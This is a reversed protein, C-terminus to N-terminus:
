DATQLYVDFVRSSTGAGSHSVVLRVYPVRLSNSFRLVGGVQKGAGFYASMSQVLGTFTASNLTDANIGDTGMPARNLNFWTVGNFSGQLYCNITPGSSYVTTDIKFYVAYNKSKSSALTGLKNAFYTTATGTVTDAAQANSAAYTTATAKFLQLQAKTENCGVMFCLTLSLLFLIRKM